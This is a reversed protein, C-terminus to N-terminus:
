QDSSPAHGFESTLLSYSTARSLRAFYLSMFAVASGSMTPQPTIAQTIAFKGHITHESTSSFLSVLCPVLCPSSLSALQHAALNM